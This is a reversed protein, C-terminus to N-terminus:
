RLVSLRLQSPCAADHFVEVTGARGTTATGFPEATGLNRAFRPFAGGSVQLRLRHGAGIRYATPFLEVDVALVRDAGLSVDPARVTRPDLRRIGDVVNRSVGGPDVDCLRVFVDAHELEPRVYVRARVPGVLDLDTPLPVGTFTLVDPRSEIARNDVQKGPPQLLPGGASPTPDFPDYRFRSPRAGDEAPDETLGGGARLHLVVPRAAAPPWEDFQLWRGAQQLFVRVAKGRPAPGGRLRHDLWAVDNRVIARLERPEGHLWPGVVIRAPVGAARLAAFDTLQGRLFLDWWGTVMSVPPFRTLDVQDHDATSWFGDGPEAHAVFDRWFPVPAGAVAVDAAQMPLRRLARATRARLRPATLARRLGGREQSGILATWNLANQVQPVGHDYLVVSSRAAAVHPSFAVLPPEAYPAVAWQTHGFYSSGTMAVRGDCWSQKRLWGVTALGDDQETTFPRFQGGSGFTGRTSQLFVQFGRRALPAGFLLGSFGERGYPTRLLVVPQPGPEGAPRYLNGLLSVGDPMPVAVDHEVTYPTATRPLGLAADALLGGLRALSV